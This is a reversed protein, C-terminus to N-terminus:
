SCRVTCTEGAAVNSGYANLDSGCAARLKVVVAEAKAKFQGSISWLRISSAFLGASSTCTSLVLCSNMLREWFELHASSAIM